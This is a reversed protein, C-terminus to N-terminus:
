HPDTVSGRSLQPQSHPIPVFDSPWEISAMLPGTVKGAWMLAHPRTGPPNRSEAVKGWIGRPEPSRKGRGPGDGGGQGGGLSQTPHTWKM